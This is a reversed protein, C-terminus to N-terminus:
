LSLSTAYGLAALLPGALLEFQRVEAPNLGTRWAEIRSANPPERTLTHLDRVRETSIYEGTESRFGTLEQLRDDAREHYRLMAADWPLEIFECISRLTMEPAQVLDEYRVELYDPAGSGHARATTITHTWWAATEALSRPGWWAKERMSLAVDRGDRILHVFRADPFLQRVLPMEFVYPPTKDGYRRKGFRDAYGEYFARLLAELPPADARDTRALLNERSIGWNAWRTNACLADALQGVSAGRAALRALQPVFHTEDPIALQPHSDLMLRLLTSGCRGSGVIFPMPPRGAADRLTNPAVPGIQPPTLPTPPFTYVLTRSAQWGPLLASDPLSVSIQAQGGAPLADSLVRRVEAFVASRLALAPEAGLMTRLDNKLQIYAFNLRRGVERDKVAHFRMRTTDDHAIPTLLHGPFHAPRVGALQLRHYLDDDEGGWGDFVVDYGGIREFDARACIVTGWTDETVPWPRYFLGPQLLPTIAEVFHMAPVVDADLFCLWDSKVEAAGANRGAAVSFRASTDIRVVGAQPHNVNVWAGTGEPCAYDVVVCPGQAAAAPLSQKLHALRAKCVTVFTITPRDSM